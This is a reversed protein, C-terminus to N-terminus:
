PNMGTIDVGGYWNPTGTPPSGVYVCMFHTGPEEDAGDAGIPLRVDEGFVVAFASEDVDLEPAIGMKPFHLKYDAARMPFAAVVDNGVGGCAAFRADASDIPHEILFACGALLLLPALGLRM